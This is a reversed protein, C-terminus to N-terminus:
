TKKKKKKVDFVDSCGNDGSYSISKAQQGEYNTKTTTTDNRISNNRDRRRSYQTLLSMADTATALVVPGADPTVLQGTINVCNLSVIPPPSRGEEEEGIPHKQWLPVVGGGRRLWQHHPSLAGAHSAVHTTIAWYWWGILVCAGLDACLFEKGCDELEAENLWLAFFSCVLGSSVVLSHELVWGQQFNSQKYDTKDQWLEWLKWDSNMIDTHMAGHTFWPMRLTTSGLCKVVYLLYGSIM